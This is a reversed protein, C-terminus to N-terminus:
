SVYKRMFAHYVFKTSKVPEQEVIKVKIINM